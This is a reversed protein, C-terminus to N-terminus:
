TPSRVSCATIFNELLCKESSVGNSLRAHIYLDTQLSVSLILVCSLWPVSWHLCPCFVFFFVANVPCLHRPFTACPSMSATSPHSTVSSCLLPLSFYLSLCPCFSPSFCSSVSLGHFFFFSACWLSLSISVSLSLRLSLSLCSSLPLLCLRHLSIRSLASLLLLSPCFPLPLQPLAPAASVGPTAMRGSLPHGRSGGHSLLKDVGKVGWMTGALWCISSPPIPGVSEESLVSGNISELFSKLQPRSQM